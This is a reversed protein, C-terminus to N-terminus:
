KIYKGNWYVKEITRKANNTASLTTMHKFEAVLKFDDPANYESVFVPNNQTRCWEWFAVHNFAGEKYERTGAYPPDCYVVAGNKIKIEDYSGCSINLRELQELRELQQLRELQELDFRDIQLARLKEKFEFRSNPMSIECNLLGNLEQLATADKDIIILHALRKLNEIGSGFLYSGYRQGFSWCCLLFGAFWDSGSIKEKYEERTIWRNPLKNGIQIYKLLEAVSQNKENYFVSHGARLGAISMAGGGGFLDYLTDFDGVTQYIANLIKNALKRKSGMYPMAPLITEKVQPGGFLHKKRM